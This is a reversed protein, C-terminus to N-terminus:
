LDFCPNDDAEERGESGANVREGTQTRKQTGSELPNFNKPPRTTPGQAEEPTRWYWVCDALNALTSGGVAWLWGRKQRDSVQGGRWVM